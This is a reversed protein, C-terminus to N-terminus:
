VDGSLVVGVEKGVGRETSAEARRARDSSLAGSAPPPPSACQVGHAGGRRGSSGQQRRRRRDGPSGALVASRARREACLMGRERGGAGTGIGWSGTAPRGALAEDVAHGAQQTQNQSIFALDNDIGSELGTSFRVVCNTQREDVGPWAAPRLGLWFVALPHDQLGEGVPM